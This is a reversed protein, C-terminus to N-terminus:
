FQGEARAEFEFTYIVYDKGRWPVYFVEKYPLRIKMTKEGRMILLDKERAPIEAKRIYYLLKKRISQDTEDQAVRILAEMHNQLEYYYYFFPIIKLASYVAAILFAGFVILTLYGAGKESNAFFRPILLRSTDYRPLSYKSHFDKHMNEMSVLDFLLIAWAKNPVAITNKNSPAPFM